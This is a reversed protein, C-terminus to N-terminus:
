QINGNKEGWYCILAMISFWQFEGIGIAYYLCICAITVGFYFKEM